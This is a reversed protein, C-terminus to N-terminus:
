KLSKLTAYNRCKKVHSITYFDGHDLPHSILRFALTRTWPWVNFCFVFHIKETIEEWCIEPLCESLLYFQWSFNRLCIQGESDVKFQLDWWKHIFNVYTTHFVLDIIRISPNYHDIIYTHITYFHNLVVFRKVYQVVQVLYNAVAFIVVKYYDELLM